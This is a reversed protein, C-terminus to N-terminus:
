QIVVGALSLKLRFFTCGTQTAGPMWIHIIPQAHLEISSKTIGLGVSDIRNVKATNTPGNTICRNAAQYEFFGRYKVEAM